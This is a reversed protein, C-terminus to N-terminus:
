TESNYTNTRTIKICFNSFTRLCLLLQRIRISSLIATQPSILHILYLCIMLFMRELFMGRMYIHSGKKESDRILVHMLVIM